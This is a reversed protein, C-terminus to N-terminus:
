WKKTHFSLRRGGVHRFLPALRMKSCVPSYCDLSSKFYTRFTSTKSERWTLTRRLLEFLNNPKTVQTLAQESFKLIYSYNLGLHCFQCNVLVTQNGMKLARSHILCKRVMIRGKAASFEVMSVNKCSSLPTLDQSVNSAISDSSEHHPAHVIKFDNPFFFPVGNRVVDLVGTTFCCSM